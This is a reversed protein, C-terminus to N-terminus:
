KAFFATRFLKAFNVFFSRHRLRKKFLTALRIAKEDSCLLHLKGDLIKEPFKVLDVTKIYYIFLRHVGTELLREYATEPFFFHLTIVGKLLKFFVESELNSCIRFFLYLRTFNRYHM